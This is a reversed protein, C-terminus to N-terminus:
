DKDWWLHIKENLKIIGATRCRQIAPKKLVRM